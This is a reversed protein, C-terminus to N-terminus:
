SLKYAVGAGIVLGGIFALRTPTIEPKIIVEYAAVGLGVLALPLAQYDDREFQRLPPM